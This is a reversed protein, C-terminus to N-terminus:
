YKSISYQRKYKKLLKEEEFEPFLISITKIIHKLKEFKKTSTLHPDVYISFGLTNIALPVGNRDVINGRTSPIYNTKIYNRKSLEEYYTNSKISLFYVRALLLITISIVLTLIIKMRM